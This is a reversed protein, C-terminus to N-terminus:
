LRAISVNGLTLIREFAEQQLVSASIGQKGKLLLKHNTILEESLLDKTYLPSFSLDKRFLIEVSYDSRDNEYLDNKDHIYSYGKDFTSKGFEAKESIIEVIAYIGRELKREVPYWPHINKRKDDLVSIIGYQKPKFYDKQNKQIRYRTTTETSALFKDINWREPTCFFTWYGTPQTVM